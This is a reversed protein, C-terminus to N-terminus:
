GLYRDRLKRGRAFRKRRQPRIARCTSRVPLRARARLDFTKLLSIRGARLVLTSAPHSTSPPTSTGERPVTRPLKPKRGAGLVLATENHMILMVEPNQVCITDIGCNRGPPMSRTSSVVYIVVKQPPSRESVVRWKAVMIGFTRREVEAAAGAKM